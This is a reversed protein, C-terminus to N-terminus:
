AIKNVHFYYVCSIVYRNKIKINKIFLIKNRANFHQKKRILMTGLMQFILNYNGLHGDVIVSNFSEYKILAVYLFVICSYLNVSSKKQMLM